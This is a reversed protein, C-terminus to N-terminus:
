LGRLVGALPFCSLPLWVTDTRRQHCFNSKFALAMFRDDVDGNSCMLVMTYQAEVFVCFFVGDHM